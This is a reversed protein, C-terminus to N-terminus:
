GINLVTDDQQDVSCFGFETFFHIALLEQFHGFQFPFLAIQEFFLLLIEYLEKHFVFPDTEELLGLAFIFALLKLDFLFIEQIEDFIGVVDLAFPDFVDDWLTGLKGDALVDISQSEVGFLFDLAEDM